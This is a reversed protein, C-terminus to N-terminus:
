PTCVSLSTSYYNGSLKVSIRTGGLGGGGSGVFFISFYPGTVFVRHFSFHLIAQLLWTYMMCVNLAQQDNCASSSLCSCISSFFPNCLAFEGQDGESAIRKGDAFDGGLQTILKDISDFDPWNLGVRQLRFVRMRCFVLLHLFLCFISFAYLLLILSPLSFRASILFLFCRSILCLLSVSPFFHLM